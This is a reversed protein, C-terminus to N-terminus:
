TKTREDLRALGELFKSHAEASERRTEEVASITKSRTEYVANLTEESLKLDAEHRERNREESQDMKISLKYIFIVVPLFVGLVAVESVFWDPM